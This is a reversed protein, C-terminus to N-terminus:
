GLRAEEAQLDSTAHDWDDYLHALEIEIAKREEGLARARSGDHWTEPDAMAAEIAKLRAELPEISSEVQRVRDRYTKLERNRRNRAEAETRKQAKRDADPAAGGSATAHGAITARGSDRV